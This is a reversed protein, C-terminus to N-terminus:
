TVDDYDITLGDHAPLIHPPLEALLEAHDLDIHMNTLV